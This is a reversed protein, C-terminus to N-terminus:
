ELEDEDPHHQEEAAEVVKVVPLLRGRKLPRGYTVEIWKGGEYKGNGLAYTPKDSKVWHGLVQAATSGSPSLPRKEQALGAGALLAISAAFALARRMRLM